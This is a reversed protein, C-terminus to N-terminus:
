INKLQWINGKAYVHKELIGKKKEKKNVYISQPLTKNHCYFM